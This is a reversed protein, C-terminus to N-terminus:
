SGTRRAMMRERAWSRVKPYTDLMVGVTCTRYGRADLGALVRRLVAVRDPAPGAGAELTEPDGRNDHLLVIGGPFVSALARDAIREETDPKWDMSDASWIVIDLELRAIKRAQRATHEGYPPRYLRVPRSLVQEVRDRAQRVHRLAARDDMTLLSRHDLGHLAVEHGDALIRRAIAPHREVQASLVFFTARSGTSALEDLIRPTDHPHPGDDYTLAIVPDTTDVCYIGFHDAVVAPLPVRMVALEAFVGGRPPPMSEVDRRRVILSGTM